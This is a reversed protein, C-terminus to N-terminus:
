IDRNKTLGVRHLGGSAIAETKGGIEKRNRM